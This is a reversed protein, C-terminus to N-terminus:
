EKDTGNRTTKRNLISGTTQQLPTQMRYEVDRDNMLTTRAVRKTIGTPANAWAGAAPAGGLEVLVSV